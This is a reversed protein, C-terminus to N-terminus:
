CFSSNCGATDDYFCTSVKERYVEKKKVNNGTHLVVKCVIKRSLSFLLAAVFGSSFGVATLYTGCFRTFVRTDEGTSILIIV